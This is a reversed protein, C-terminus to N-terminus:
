PEFVTLMPWKQLNQLKVRQSLLSFSFLDVRVVEKYKNSTGEDYSNPLFCLLTALIM